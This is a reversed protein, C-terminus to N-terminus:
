ETTTLLWKRRARDAYDQPDYYDASVNLRDLTLAGMARLLQHAAVYADREAQVVNLRAEFLEQEQDLVDLTTRVGVALEEKAGEYAIAAAEEQRISAEIAILSAKYGYWAQAVQAQVQRQLNDIQNRARRRELKASRVQSRVLGGEFLPIRAQAVVSASTDRQRSNLGFSDLYDEQAAATGVISVSPKLRGYAGKVAEGAAREAFKAAIIDPSNDLASETAEEITFPLDPQPPAPALEGADTGTLFYYAALSGELQAQAGALNAKSGELRAESLAVDTRTIEGVEFRDNAAQVQEMLVEVNNERIRVAERDRLVDVYGTITQLFLDQRVADLQADTSKIGAKAQNIGAKIQGGTYLPQTAQLQASSTPNTGEQGTFFGTRNNDINQYGISGSLNVQPRRQARAQALQEQAIKSQTRQAELRPNNEYALRLADQLTEAGATASLGFCIVIAASLRPLRSM